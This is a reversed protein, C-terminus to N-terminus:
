AAGKVPAGNKTQAMMGQALADLGEVFAIDTIERRARKSPLLKGCPHVQPAKALDVRPFELCEAINDMARDGLMECAESGLLLSEVAVGEAIIVAHQDLLIHHYGVPKDRTEQRVGPLATYAKAAALEAPVKQGLVLRHNPSLRLDRNPLGGGLSGARFRIPRQDPPLTAHTKGGAWVVRHTRGDSGYVEDGTVIAEVPRLGRPTAIRTGTCFCVPPAGAFSASYPEASTNTVLAIASLLNPTGDPYVFYHQGTDVDQMVMLDVPFGTPVILGLISIGPIAFGSGVMELTKGGVDYQEGLYFIGTEDTLTGSSQPGFINLLHNVNSGFIEPLTLSFSLAQLTVNLDM